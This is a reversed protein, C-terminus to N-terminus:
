YATRNTPANPHQGDTLEITGSAAIYKVEGIAVYPIIDSIYLINM